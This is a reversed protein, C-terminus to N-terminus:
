EKEDEKKDEEVRDFDRKLNTRVRRLFLRKRKRPVPPQTLPGEDGSIGGNGLPSVPGENISSLNVVSGSMDDDDPGAENDEPEDEKKHEKEYQRMTQWPGRALCGEGFCFQFRRRVIEPTWIGGSKQNAECLDALLDRKNIAKNFTMFIADKNTKVLMRSSPSGHTWRKTESDCSAWGYPSDPFPFGDYATFSPGNCWSAFWHLLTQDLNDWLVLSCCHFSSDDRERADQEVVLIEQGAEVIAREAARGRLYAERADREAARRRVFDELRGATRMM